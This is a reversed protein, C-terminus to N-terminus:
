PNPSPAASSRGLRQLNAEHTQRSIRYLSLCGVMVLFLGIVVPTFVLGLNRVVELDVTGPKANRPFDIANLLLTSTFIGIGSVSKQVFANVAFFIGESRRGTTVESDEVVDAVMSAILISAIIFFTVLTTNLVALVPLLAPSANDPFLGLLRLVVPLPALILAGLATRIAAPKKGFRISLRPAVPLAIAASLFNLLVLISMARSSLEWFYTNFYITLAASLGAAMGGFIAAGFISLFSRNALAQRVEALASRLSRHSAVAPQRLYPIFPHTGAASILIAIFMIVAATLGYQQYGDANLVGVSHEADPQLFVGYALVAMTLGGWWGFFFRYSLITTREDYHDTLEPVLSSSPIEYCAILIRVLIAISVFYAFLQLQTLGDPPNWLFYYSIAVLPASAYMFPHRRGWPSRFHDSVYGVIPDFLADAFLALMIGFGVWAESLGLVQNYYLLLFFAFGNDKVGFAVSGFGYFIKTWTGPARHPM